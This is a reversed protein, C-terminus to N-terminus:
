LITTMRNVVNHTHQFKAFIKGLQSTFRDSSSLNAEAIQQFTMFCNRDIIM